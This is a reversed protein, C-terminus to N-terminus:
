VTEEERALANLKRAVGLLTMFMPFITVSYILNQVSSLIIWYILCALMPYNIVWNKEKFSVKVNYVLERALFGIYLLAGPLGVELTLRLYDNHPVVDVRFFKMTVLSTTGIGFGLFPHVDLLHIVM